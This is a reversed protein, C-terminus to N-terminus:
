LMAGETCPVASSLSSSVTYLVSGRRAPYAPMEADRMVRKPARKARINEKPQHWRLPGIQRARVASVVSTANLGSASKPSRERERVAHQRSLM